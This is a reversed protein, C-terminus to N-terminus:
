IRRQTEISVLDSNFRRPYSRGAIVGGGKGGEKGLTSNKGLFQDAIHKWGGKSDSTNYIQTMHLPLGNTSSMMPVQLTLHVDFPDRGNYQHVFREFRSALTGNEGSPRFICDKRSKRTSPPCFVDEYELYTHINDYLYPFPHPTMQKKSDHDISYPNNGTQWPAARVYAEDYQSYFRSLPDRVYTIVEAGENKGGMQFSNPQLSMRIERAHFDNKLMFRATSSGSKPLMVYALKHKESYSVPVNSGDDRGGQVHKSYIRPEAFCHRLTEAHSLSLTGPPFELPTSPSDNLRSLAAHQTQADKDRESLIWTILDSITKRPAGPPLTPHSASALPNINMANENGMGMNINNDLVVMNQSISPSIIFMTAASFIFALSLLAVLAWNNSRSKRKPSNPPGASRSTGLRRGGVSVM